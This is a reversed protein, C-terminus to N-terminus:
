SKQDLASLSCVSLSVYCGVTCSACTPKFFQGWGGKVMGVFLAGGGGTGFVSPRGEWPKELAGSTLQLRFHTGRSFQGRFNAIKQDKFNHLIQEIQLVTIYKTESYDSM